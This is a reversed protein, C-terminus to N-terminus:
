RKKPHKFATILEKNYDDLRFMYGDDKASGNVDARMFMKVGMQEYFGSSIGKCLSEVYWCPNATKPALLWNIQMGVM